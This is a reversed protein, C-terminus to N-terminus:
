LAVQCCPRGSFLSSANGGNGVRYNNRSHGRRKSALVVLVFGITALTASGSEPVPVPSFVIADLDFLNEDQPFGGGPVGLSQIALQATTGAFATVDGVMSITPGSGSPPSMNIQVGNLTVLPAAKVFSGGRILLQISRADAPLDGTQSISATHYLGAPADAFAYLRVSYSGQIPSYSPGMLTVSTEDLANPAGWVATCAVGDERVTWGPLAGAASIPPYADFPIFNPPASQIQAQEFDLNQFAAGLSVSALSLTVLAVALIRLNRHTALPTSANM